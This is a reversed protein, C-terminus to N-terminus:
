SVEFHSATNNGERLPFLFFLVRLTAFPTLIVQEILGRSFSWLRLDGINERFVFSLKLTEELHWFSYLEPQM